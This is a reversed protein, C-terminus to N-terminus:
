DIWDVRVHEFYPINQEWLAKRWHQCPTLKHVRACIDWCFDFFNGWAKFKMVPSWPMALGVLFPFGQIFQWLCHNISVLCVSTLKKYTQGTVSWSYCWLMTLTATSGDPWLWSSRCVVKVINRLFKNDMVSCVCSFGINIIKKQLLLNDYQGSGRTM